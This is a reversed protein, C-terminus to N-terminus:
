PSPGASSTTTRTSRTCRSRTPGMLVVLVAGHGPRGVFWFTTYLSLLAITFGLANAHLMRPRVPRGKLWVHPLYLYTKALDGYRITWYRDMVLSGGETAILKRAGEVSYERPSTSVSAVPYLNLYYLFYVFEPQWMLIGGSATLLYPSELTKQPHGNSFFVAQWAVIAVLGAVLVLPRRTAAGGDASAPM